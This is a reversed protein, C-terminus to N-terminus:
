HHKSQIFDSTLLEHPLAPSYLFGQASTCGLQKLFSLQEQTEVGEAIVNLNLNQGMAIITRALVCDDYNDPVQKVFSKDIKLTRIPFQRLYNLSSYGTGFDDMAIGIGADHLEQIAGVNTNCEDIFISETIELELKHPPIGTDQLAHNVSNVFSENSFQRPSVNVALKPIDFGSEVWRSFHSCATNLVWEGVPIILGTDELLQIFKLPLILGHEPHQWRLLAEIGCLKGSSIDYQPQFHLEFENRELARHLQNELLLQEKAMVNMNSTYFQYSNRGHQKAHYMATDAHKLLTYPDHSDDPYVAIGLSATVFLEHDDIDIPRSIEFLIKKAITPIANIEIVGSLLVTFEDGSLRAVTDNDRIVNMLRKAIIRLMTDGTAHGLTDNINKFRDIDLYILVIHGGTRTAGKIAQALRDTFLLRNALGTLVDHHALYQLREHTRMRDTIDKGSSVYHTIEGHTNRMPTITKEEYYLNGDKRKNVFVDRFVDGQKITEWLQLYFAKDMDGSKVINPKRGIAEHRKYGTTDEFGTNVYEILGNKDTVMVSDASQEVAQSLKSMEAESEKRQTSDRVMGIYFIEKGLTMESISLDMPFYSGDKRQGEVERFGLGLCLREGTNHYRELYGDHQSKYPEPMLMSVNQGIVENAMYQFLREATANYSEVLGNKDITIIGDAVNDMIARVRQDAVTTQARLIEQETLDEIIVLLKADTDLPQRSDATLMPIISFEFYLEKGHIDSCPIVIGRQGRLSTLVENARDRLGADPFLDDILRGKLVEHDEIFMRDMFRNVSLVTLQSDLVLLGSPVNCVLNEAFEKLSEIEHRDARIYTEIALEIDLFVVKLLAQIGAITLEAEQNSADWIDPLLSCLYKSYAGFYWRPELGVKQHIVGIRLRDLVYNWDYEGNLLTYFYEAQKQKLHNISQEDKLFGATHPFSLLHEYFGLMLDHHASQLAPQLQKLIALDAGTLELYQKRDELDSPTIGMTELVDKVLKDFTNDKPLCDGSKIHPFYAIHKRKIRM